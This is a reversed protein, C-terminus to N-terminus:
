ALEILAQRETLLGTDGSVEMAKVVVLMAAAALLLHSGMVACCLLAQRLTRRGVDGGCWGGLIVGLCGRLSAASLFKLAGHGENRPQPPAPSADVILEAILELASAVAGELNSM